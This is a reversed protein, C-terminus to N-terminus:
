DVRRIRNGDNITPPASNVKNGLGYSQWHEYEEIWVHAFPVERHTDFWPGGETYHVVDPRNGAALSFKPSVGSIYNYTFPLTGIQVDQLWRFAHLDCGKASNIKDINLARNAPHACNWLVFSSWNKRDYRLQLRGDMKAINENPVHVHKVCMVAYKDDCLAFLKTIDSLFLMDADMFLAWGKYGTLEPILFRTHSFETSFPRMDMLDTFAGTPGDVLWPRSFLGSKRLERHKLFKINTKRTARRELSHSAVYSCVEERSDWGIFVNLATHADVGM